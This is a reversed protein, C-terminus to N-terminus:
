ITVANTVNIMPTSDMYAYVIGTIKYMGKIVDIDPPISLLISYKTDNTDSSPLFDAIYSDKLGDQASSKGSIAAVYGELTVEKGIYSDLNEHIDKFNDIKTNTCGSLGVALLLFVLGIAILHRKM